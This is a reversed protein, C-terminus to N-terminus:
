LFRDVGRVREAACDYDTALPRGGAARAAHNRAGRQESVRSNRIVPRAL